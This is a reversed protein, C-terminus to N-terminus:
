VIIFQLSIFRVKVFKTVMLYYREKDEKTLNQKKIKSIQAFKWISTKALFDNILENITENIQSSSSQGVIELIRDM